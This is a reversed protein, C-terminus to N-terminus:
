AVGAAAAARGSFGLENYQVAGLPAAMTGAVKFAEDATQPPDIVRAGTAFKAMPKSMLLSIFSGVFGVVISYVALMPVNLGSGALYQNVGLLSLVVSLVLGVALNTALFLVIRKM